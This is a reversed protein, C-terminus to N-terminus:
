EKQLWTVKKKLKVTLLRTTPNSVGVFRWTRLLWLNDCHLGENELYIWKRLRSRHIMVVTRNEFFIGYKRGKHHRSPYVPMIPTGDVKLWPFRIIDSYMSQGWPAEPAHSQIFSRFIYWLDDEIRKRRESIQYEGLINAITTIVMGFDLTPVGHQPWRDTMTSSPIVQKNWIKNLVRLSKPNEGM